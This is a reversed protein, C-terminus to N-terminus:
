IHILSLMILQISQETKIKKVFWGTIKRKKEQDCVTDNLKFPKDKLVAVAESSWSAITGKVQDLSEQLGDGLIM